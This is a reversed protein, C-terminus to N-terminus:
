SIKQLKCPFSDFAYNAVIFITDWIVSDSNCGRYLLKLPALAAHSHVDVMPNFDQADCVAFDLIGRECLDRYEHM